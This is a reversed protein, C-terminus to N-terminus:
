LASLGSVTNTIPVGNNTISSKGLTKVKFWKSCFITAEDHTSGSAIPYCPTPRAVVYFAKTIGKVCFMNTFKNHSYVGKTKLLFDAKQGVDLRVRTVKLVKWFSGFLPHDFPTHGAKYQSIAEGGQVIDHQASLFEMTQYPNKVSANAITKKAVCEYVDFDKPLETLVGNTDTNRRLITMKLHAKFYFKVGSINNQDQITGDSIWNVNAMNSGIYPLDSSSSNSTGWGLVMSYPDCIAEQYKSDPFTLMNTQPVRENYHFHWVNMVARQQVIRKVKRRFRKARRRTQYAKYGGKTRRKRKKRQYLSVAPDASTVMRSTAANGSNQGGETQTAMSLTKKIINAVHEPKIFTTNFSGGFPKPYYPHYRSNKSMHFGLVCALFINVM